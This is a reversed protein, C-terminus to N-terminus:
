SHQQLQALGEDVGLRIMGAGLDVRPAGGGTEGGEHRGANEAERQLWGAQRAAKKNVHLSARPMAYRTRVHAHFDMPHLTM